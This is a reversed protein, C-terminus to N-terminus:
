AVWYGQIFLITNIILFISELVYLGVGLVKHKQSFKYQVIFLPFLVMLYRPMSQFTGTLTPVVYSGWCFLLYSYSSYGLADSNKKITVITMYVLVFGAIVTIAFEQAYAFYKLDVPITTLIKIYRFVVQPFLVLSQQRGTNFAQQVHFFYLPDGFEKYLYIMYSLLGLVGGLVSSWASWLIQKTKKQLLLVEILLAPIIFIGTVRTATTLASFLFVLAWQKKKVFYFSLLVFLLFLSETYVSVFFFSTPYLLFPLLHKINLKEKKIVYYGYVMISLVFAIHSVMLGSVVPNSVINILRVFYPYVPFFAQILGTGIYGKLIITVYHVGDFGAFRTIYWPGYELLSEAYPYSPKFPLIMNSLMVIVQICVRWVLLSLFVNMWKRM